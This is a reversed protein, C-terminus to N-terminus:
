RHNLTAAKTFVMDRHHTGRLTYGMAELTARYEKRRDDWAEVVITPHHKEITWAAGRLAEMEYGELDLYILDCVPLHLSDITQVSRLESSNEVRSCSTDGHEVFPVTAGDVAGLVNRHRVIGPLHRTNAVLCDFNQSDPEFVHVTTFHRMLRLPWFGVHGGAQVAVATRRCYRVVADVDSIRELMFRAHKPDAAFYQPVQLGTVPCRVPHGIM